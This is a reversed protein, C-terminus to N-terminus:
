FAMSSKLSFQIIETYEKTEPHKEGEERGGDKRMRKYLAGPIMVQKCVM